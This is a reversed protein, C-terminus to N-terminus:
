KSVPAMLFEESKLAQMIGPMGRLVDKINTAHEYAIKKLDKKKAVGVVQTLFIPPSNGELDVALVVGYAFQAEETSGEAQPVSVADVQVVIRRMGEGSVVTVFTTESSDWNFSEWLASAYERVVPDKNIEKPKIDIIVPLEASAVSSAMLSAFLLVVIKKFM